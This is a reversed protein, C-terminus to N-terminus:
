SSFLVKIKFWGVYGDLYDPVRLSTVRFSYFCIPFFIVNLSNQEFFQWLLKPANLDKYNKEPSQKNQLISDLPIKKWSVM